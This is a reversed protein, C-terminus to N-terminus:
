KTKFSLWTLRQLDSSRNQLQEIHDVKEEIFVLYDGKGERTREGCRGKKGEM